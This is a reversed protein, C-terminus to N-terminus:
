LEPLEEIPRGSMMEPRAERRGTLGFKGKVLNACSAVMTRGFKEATVDRERILGSTRYIEGVKIQRVQESLIERHELLIDVILHATDSDVPQGTDAEWRELAWRAHEPYRGYKSM